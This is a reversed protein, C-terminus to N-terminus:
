AAKSCTTRWSASRPRSAKTASPSIQPIGADSYLKSAPITTGSNLHGVVGAVKADVLKQAVTTGQKPDAQDDEAILEFKVKKGDITVGKANADDIALRAGNENDKGLHAQPGTTPGVHGIKVTMEPMAPAAAPAPTAAQKPEEKGCGYAALLAAAVLSLGFSRNLTM